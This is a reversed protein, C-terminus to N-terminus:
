GVDLVKTKSDQLLEHVPASFNSEWIHRLTFHLIQQRAHEDDDFPLIYRADELVLFKRGGIYKIMQEDICHSGLTSCTSSVMSQTRNSATSLIQIHNSSELQDKISADAAPDSYSQKTKKSIKHVMNSSEQILKSQSKGM